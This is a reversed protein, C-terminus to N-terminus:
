RCARSTVGSVPEVHRTSQRPAVLACLLLLLICLVVVLGVIKLAKMPM